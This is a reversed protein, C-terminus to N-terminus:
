LRGVSQSPLVGFTGSGPLIWAIFNGGPPYTWRFGEPWGVEDLEIEVDLDWLDSSLIHKELRAKGEPLCLQTRNLEQTRGPEKQTPIKVSLLLTLKNTFSPLM